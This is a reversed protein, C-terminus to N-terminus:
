GDPARELEANLEAGAIVVYASVFLWLMVVIVAGLVGYTENYTGFNTTYVSLGVSALLWLVTALVAGPSVWRWRGRDADRAPAFRYLVALGLLALAAFLPWRAFQLGTRLAGAAGDSGLTGPLVLLFVSVALVLIAGVTLALALGRQRVFGRDGEGGYARDVAEVLHKMAASASWLAVALGVVAGLRLGTPESRVIARLQSEVLDRVEDPAAALADDVNRQIDAPDAVLGYASVLAVLSPVLALLGFFAVGAALLPANDRRMARWTRVGVDRWQGGVAAGRASAAGRDQRQAWGREFRLRRARTEAM